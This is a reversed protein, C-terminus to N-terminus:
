HLQQDTDNKVNAVLDMNTAEMLEQLNVNEYRDVYALFTELIDYLNGSDVTVGVGYLDDISETNSLSVIFIMAQEITYFLAPKDDLPNYSDEEDEHEESMVDNEEPM